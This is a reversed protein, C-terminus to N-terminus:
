HKLAFNMTVSYWKMFSALRKAKTHCFLLLFVLRSLLKRIFAREAILRDVKSVAKLLIKRVKGIRQLQDECEAHIHHQAKNFVFPQVGKDKTRIKLCVAAFVSLSYSRM